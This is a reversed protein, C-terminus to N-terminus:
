AEENSLTAQLYRSALECFPVYHREFATGTRVYRHYPWNKAVWSDPEREEFPVFDQREEIHAESYKHLDPWETELPIRYLYLYFPNDHALWQMSQPPKRGLLLHALFMSNVHQRLWEFHKVLHGFWPALWTFVKATFHPAKVWGPTIGAGCDIAYYLGVPGAFSQPKKRYWFDTMNTSRVWSDDVPETAFSRADTGVLILNILYRTLLDAIEADGYKLCAGCTIGCWAMGDIWNTYQFPLIQITAYAEDPRVAAIVEQRVEEIPRM